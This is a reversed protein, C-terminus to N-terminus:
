TQSYPRIGVIAYDADNITVSDGVRTGILAHGLDSLYSILDNDPDSEWPGLVTLERRSGDSAELEATAGVRVESGDLRSFDIPQARALDAQLQGLRASLYEHRERASKYEFNERLDGMAAAEQIAKRNAPIETKLLDQAEQRRREISEKLAYLVDSTESHLEPFRLRIANLLPQRAFEELASREVAAEASEADDPQLDGVLKPLTGGSELLPDLTARYGAFEDRGIVGLLRRFLRPAVARRLEDDRGAESALWLFAAPCKNPQSLVTDITTAMREPATQQLEAAMKSALAVDTESLLASSYVDEWDQRELRIAALLAERIPKGTTRSLLRAPEATARALSRPSFDVTEETLGHRDLALWIEIAREPQTDRLEHAEETFTTAMRAALEANQRANKSFLDLQEDLSGAEFADLLSEHADERSAAWHYRQRKDSTVLVQPHNRAATWWRSWQSKSVVGDLAARIDNATLPEGYSELVERLLESPEEDRLRELKAPDELKDRLIHGAALPELMKAGAKFGVTLGQHREFDVKYSGLDFNIAAIRGVGKGQMHVVSGVDLRMLAELREVQLRITRLDSTSRSLGSIRLMQPLSESDGFVHEVADVAQSHMAAPKVYLDGVDLLLTLRERWLELAALEDDLLRLLGRSQEPEGVNALERAVQSFYDVDAPRDDVRTLWEDELAELDAAALYRKTTEPLSM